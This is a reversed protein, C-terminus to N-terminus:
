SAAAAATSAGSAAERLFDGVARVCEDPREVILLHAAHEIVALRAQPIRKRILRATRLPVVRDQAANLLLVPMTIRAHDVPADKTRDHMMALLCARTGTIRMPRLYTQRQEATLAHRDYFAARLMVQATLKSMLPLWPRVMFSPLAFRTAREEGTTSAVLVASEVMEPYAAAFRQVVAGGMSHGVVVARVVGVRDLLAKIMRVQDSHSLGARADRESYGFGKLDVVICRHGRELREVMPDFMAGMGGFGHIFVMAPGAGRDVYHVRYGDVEAIAGPKAVDEWRLDERIGARRFLAIIGAFFAAIVAVIRLFM